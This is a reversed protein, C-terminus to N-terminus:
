EAAASVETAENESGMRSGIRVLDRFYQSEADLLVVSLAALAEGQARPRAFAGAVVASIFSGVPNALATDPRGVTLATRPAVVQM